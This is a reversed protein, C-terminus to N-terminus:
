IIAYSRTFTEASIGYIDQPDAHLYDGANLIRTDGRWYMRCDIDEKLCIFKKIENKSSNIGHCLVVGDGSSLHDVVFQQLEETTYVKM